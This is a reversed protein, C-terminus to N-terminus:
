LRVFDEGLGPMGEVRAATPGTGTVVPQVVPETVRVFPDRM